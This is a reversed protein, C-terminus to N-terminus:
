ADLYVRFYASHAAQFTGIRFTIYNDNVALTTGLPAGNIPRWCPATTVGNYTDIQVWGMTQPTIGIGHEVSYDFATGSTSPLSVKDFMFLKPYNYNTNLVFDDALGIIPNLDTASDSPEFGFLRYYITVAGGTPNSAIIYVNTADSFVNATIGFLLGPNGSPFTGIAYEYQLSFDSVMSWSGGCLPAFPLGHPITTIAGSALSALSFSGPKMYSIKDVPYDSTLDMKQQSALSTM